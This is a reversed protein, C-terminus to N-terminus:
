NDNPVDRSVEGPLNIKAWHTVGNISYGGIGYWKYGASDLSKARQAILMGRGNTVLHDVHSEIARSTPDYEIWEIM